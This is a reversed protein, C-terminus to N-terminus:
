IGFSMLTFIKRFRYRNSAATLWLSATLNKTESKELVTDRKSPVFSKPEVTLLKANPYMEVFIKQWQGVINNPVVYLNKKSLGMRRLEMGSAIM